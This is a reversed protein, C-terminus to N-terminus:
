IRVGWGGFLASDAGHGVRVLGTRELASLDDLGAHSDRLDQVMKAVEGKWNTELYGAFVICCNLYSTLALPQNSAVKPMIGHLILTKLTM